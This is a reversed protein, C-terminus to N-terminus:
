ELKADASWSGCREVNDKPTDCRAARVPKASGTTLGTAPLPIVVELVWEEDDNSPDDLTGDRDLGVKVDPMPPTLKGTADIHFSLAGITVDFFDRSQINEDAAYLGVYLKGDDHLWRVESFPRAQEGTASTLIHRLSHNNWDPEGLEGDIVLPGSTRPIVVPAREARKTSCGFLALAILLSRM